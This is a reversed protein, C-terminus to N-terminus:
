FGIKMNRIINIGMWWFGKMPTGSNACILTWSGGTGCDLLCQKMSEISKKAVMYRGDRNRWTLYDRHGYRALRQADQFRLEGITTAM